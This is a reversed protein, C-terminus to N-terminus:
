PAQPARAGGSKLGFLLLLIKPGEWEKLYFPGSIVKPSQAGESEFVHSRGQKEFAPTTSVVVVVRTIVGRSSLSLPSISFFVKQHNVVLLSM